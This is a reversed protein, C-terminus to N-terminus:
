LKCIYLHECYNELTFITIKIFPSFYKVITKKSSNIAKCYIIVGWRKCHVIIGGCRYM